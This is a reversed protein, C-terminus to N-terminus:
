ITVNNILQDGRIFPLTLKIKFTLYLYKPTNFVRALHVYGQCWGGNVSVNEVGDVNGDMGVVGGVSYM